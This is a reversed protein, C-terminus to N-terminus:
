LRVRDWESRVLTHGEDVRRTIGRAELFDLFPLMVRRTSQFHDRLAAVTLMEGTELASRAYDVMAAYTEALLVVNPPILVVDGQAILTKLITEDGLRKVIEKYGPPTFPQNQLEQLLAEIKQRQAKTFHVGHGQLKIFRGEKKLDSHALLIDMIEGASDSIGVNRFFQSREMGILLPYEEHFRMLKKTIRNIVRQLGDPHFVLDGQCQVGWVQRAEDLLARDDVNDIPQPLQHEKIRFALKRAPDDGALVEFRELVDDNLRKWRRSPHSDLIVGGGITQPPSALRVVFRDGTRIPLPTRLRLQIFGDENPSLANASLLRVTAVSESPGLFLKVEANHKLPHQAEQLHHYSADVQITPQIADPESLVSGRTIAQKDIGVLNVAIRSGPYATDITQNHSQLGRIRAQLGEPQVEVTDGVKLVGQSLTGTVVTGFGRITFVRDIPLFPVGQAVHGPQHELAQVLAGQLDSLGHNKKASVRVLPTHEFGHRALFERVDSEVLNLWDQSEALDTKTLAVVGQELGMLQLIALHERTQPMVGEDAAIVLLFADLGAVGALMNEIFDEHGPVDVIAVHEDNPLTIWAFGLDITMEREKEEQWRDPHIGSLAEVLTSKGHDVHGATCIVRM